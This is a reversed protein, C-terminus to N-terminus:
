VANTICLDIIPYFQCHQPPPAFRSPPFGNECLGGYIGCASEKSHVCVGRVLLHSVAVIM